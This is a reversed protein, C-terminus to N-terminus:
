GHFQALVEPGAAAKVELAADVGLRAADAVGGSRHAEFMERGDPTLILGRLRVGAGNVTALGAIPTRCSGDLEGLFAREATLSVSTAAHDLPALAARTDDDKDRIEICIAGQGLAPPFREIDLRETIEDELGLRILGASALLTADVAGERLKRLRTQVNGRYTIVEVDPRLRRVLAQRRLSATGVVAGPRLEELTPAAGGIVADRVDERELFTSIVLGDPLVTPMDKSSHVALDITGDLLAEEIEKTFLGKGGVESLPRDQIQDGTTKIITIGVADPDLGHAAILRDRVANAQYLALPSGRTGIRFTERM